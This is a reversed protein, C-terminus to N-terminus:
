YLYLFPKLIIKIDDYDSEKIRNCIQEYEKKCEILTNETQCSPNIQQLKKIEDLLVFLRNIIIHYQNYYELKDLIKSKKSKKSPKSVTALPTITLPTIKRLEQSKKKSIIPLRLKDSSFEEPKNLSFNVRKTYIPELILRGNAQEM